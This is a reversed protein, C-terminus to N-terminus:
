LEVRNEDLWRELDDIKYRIARRGIQIFPPAPTHNQRNGHCRSQRLFSVSMGIYRAADKETLTAPSRLHNQLLPNNLL